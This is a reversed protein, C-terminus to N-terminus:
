HRCHFQKNSKSHCSRRYIFRSNGKLIHNAVNFIGKHEPMTKGFEIGYDGFVSEASEMPPVNLWQIASQHWDGCTLLECKLNLAHLGSVYKM